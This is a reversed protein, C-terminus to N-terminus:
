GVRYTGSLRDTWTKISAVTLTLLLAPPLVLWWAAAVYSLGSNIMGGLTPNPPPRGLGLFSLGSELALIEVASLGILMLVVPMLNPLLQWLLITRVPAGLARAFLIHESALIRLSEARSIRASSVWSVAIIALTLSLFTVGIIAIVLVALIAVPISWL